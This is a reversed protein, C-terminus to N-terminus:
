FDDDPLEIRLTKNKAAEQLADPAEEEKLAQTTGPESFFPISIMEGCTPCQDESGAMDFPAEIEQGCNKCRFSILHEDGDDVPATPPMVQQLVPAEPKAAEGPGPVTFNKGCEPCSAATGVMDKGAEIIVNCYPCNFSFLGEESKVEAVPKPAVPAAESAAPANEAAYQAAQAPTLVTIYNSPPPAITEKAKKLPRIRVVDHAAILLTEGTRPNRAHREKRKGLDIKCLGPVTFGEPTKAERYAIEALEDLFLGTKRKSLGIKEALEDILDRKTFTGM